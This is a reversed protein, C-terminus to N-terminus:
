QEEITTTTLAEKAQEKLTEKLKEKDKFLNKLKEVTQKGQKINEKTEEDLSTEVAEKIKKKATEKAKTKIEEKNMGSLEQLEPPIVTDSPITKLYAEAKDMDAQLVIWKFSKILTLPKAVDGRVVVQFKTANNDSIEKGLSPIQDMEPQTVVETFLFFLKGMVLSMGPTAKMLNIPNLLAVPGLSDSVQSGLRGRLKIDITNKLLDFNGFIYTAMINGSSDIPNIDCTGNNFSLHGKLTNYHSTDFSLLSNLVSGITSKFFENERINEAMILNELKGFPGLQGDKMIFDVNGKLSKMQEEYTSGKLSINTSFDMKGTLTDKMNAADLLTKEVDLGAGNLIAKIESSILNMSVDGKIKGKFASTLLNNVYFVNKLLSIKATTDNLVINGTKIEKINISGDKIIVPIDAAQVNSTSKNNTKTSSSPSVYKMAADSVKMLKDVDTLKSILNLNKIVFNQSPTLDANILVNYDSGNAIINKIDIDLNKGEFKAAAKEITLILEPISIDWLNFEGRIRPASLDGFVYMNGKAKLASNPFASIKGSLEKPMQVKILNINPNSTNLKTITGDVGIVEELNIIQKDPNEPDPSVTKIFLGTDKIKLRDGKFDIVTQLSTNKNLVNNLDIPTIYNNQNAEISAFLTQKKKDGDVNVNFPISGKSNIFVALDPGLFQKIDSTRVDGKADFNFKPNKNYDNIYGSFKIDTAGNIRIIAPAITIDKEGLNLVFKDCSASAGNMTLKFDSNNINGTINKFNSNFEASLLNLYNIKNAKDTLSMNNLTLKINGQAKKLEGKIYAELNIFGSNVAYTKNIDSPLFMTFVNELPMKEMNINIDAISKDDITGSVKFITKAIEVTTDIFELMSNELSIISNIKALIINQATNKIVCDKVTINGSSALKKFNTNFATDAIFYGEGRIPMLEHKIHLSDLTAKVLALVNDTHIQTSNVKLDAFPNKGYKLKGSVSLKEEPTIFLDSDIQAKTGRTILHLKSEPLQMGALNLTFNDVNLYGKSVILGDKNRIKIKSDINTKLDYAKYMSVPNIFPIEVRQAADDEEDLKSQQPIFTNIDINATINKTQNIYLEALTKLSFSKGNNYGLVLEDGCLKLFDGTKLDNIFAAYNTLKVAPVIIKIMSPDILPKEATQLNQEINEDQKDLIEEFASVAKFANGDVIDVNVVPNLIDAKSVKVTLFILHPLSIRGIFNDAALLESDDPLKITINDLSVGAGLLPTVSIKPNNFDLKLNTQEQVIKQLDPKFKNLDVARPLVFLFALYLGLIIVLLLIGLIKFFKKM